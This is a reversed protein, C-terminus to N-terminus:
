WCFYKEFCSKDYQSESFKGALQLNRKVGNTEMKCELISFSREANCDTGVKEEDFKNTICVGELDVLFSLDDVQKHFFRSWLSNETQFFEGQDFTSSLYAKEEARLQEM